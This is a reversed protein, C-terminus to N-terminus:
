DRPSPSKYLLCTKYEPSLPEMNRGYDMIQNYRDFPDDIISFEEIVEDQLENITKM